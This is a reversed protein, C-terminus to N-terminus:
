ASRGVYELGAFILIATAQFWSRDLAIVYDPQVQVAQYAFNAIILCIVTVFAVM